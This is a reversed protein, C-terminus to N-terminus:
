GTARPPAGGSSRILAARAQLASRREAGLRSLNKLQMAMRQNGRLASEHRLLYDWYLTTFPCAADGVGEAPDFRCGTCHNSMRQIYKGTAIYPKSAMVGGDAYQSMGLTNPLEVWEVADVYVALYWAHVAKPDVGLLLAYLGTVMLRQIHHAYGYRLTQGIADGLCAMETEASWYFAPLPEHAGMANRGLYAPMLLWYVGRVYERWGLIQRIFGEVAELPARRERYAREAAAIVVRPDLLKLNMAAALRSHYLWPERSWMADQFRGFEPLRHAIFDDLAAQAEAPTVPWDFDDVRGPHDSFRREVSALVDRTIADPTFRRPAPLLGPGDRGFSGRNEADFNWAGGVPTGDSEVLVGHRKRMERYFYEMRLQKRSAAHARFEERTCLFHRDARIELPVGVATAVDALAQRVRWEGPEVVVLREPRAAECARRLEGALTGTNTADELHTYHLRWGASEASARFHRMASLFLATRPKSSWATTSEEAVEAMWLADVAPDAGDFLASGLDLQDGLVLLLARV